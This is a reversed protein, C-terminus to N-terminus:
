PIIEFPIRLEPMEPVNTLIRLAQGHLEPKAVVNALQLRFGQNRALAFVRVKISPDPIEVSQIQLTKFSGPRVAVYRTVPRQNKASLLIKEPAFAVPGVVSGMVGVSILPHQPHDSHIRITGAFRGTPVPPVTEMHVKFHKGPVVTEVRARIHELSCEIEGLNLTRRNSIIEAVGFAPETASVNQLYVRPPRIELDALSTGSVKLTLNPSVPDNSQVTITKLQPGQRGQLNLRATLAMSEGPPIIDNPLSAVTCGCSTRTGLIEISLDGENKLIFDHTVTESNDRTGFDFAPEECVLRPAPAATAVVGTLLLLVSFKKIFLNM